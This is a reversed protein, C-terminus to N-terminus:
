NRPPADYAVRRAYWAAQECSTGNPVNGWLRGIIMPSMMKQLALVRLLLSEACITAYQRM